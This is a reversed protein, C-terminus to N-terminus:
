VLIDLQFDGVQEINLAEPFGPIAFPMQLSMQLSYTGVVQEGALYAAATTHATISMDFPVPAPQWTMVDFLVEGQRAHFEFSNRFLTPTEPNSSLFEADTEMVQTSLGKRDLVQQTFANSSVFEVRAQIRGNDSRECRGRAIHNTMNALADLPIVSMNARVHAPVATGSAIRVAAPWGSALPLRTDFQVQPVSRRFGDPSMLAEISPWREWMEAYEFRFLPEDVNRSSPRYVRFEAGNCLVFIQAAVDAHVAYSKAQEYCEQDLAVGGGKAELLWSGYGGVELVYDPKGTLKPDSKKKRGLYLFEHRLQGERLINNQAGTQYGLARLFPDIIEARVDPESLDSLPFTRRELPCTKM